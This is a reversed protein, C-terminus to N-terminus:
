QSVVVSLTPTGASIAYHDLPSPPLPGSSGYGYPVPVLQLNVDGVSAPSSLDANVVTLYSAGALSYGVWTVSGDAPSILGTGTPGTGSTATTGGTQAVYITTVGNASVALADGTAVVTSTAWPRVLQRKTNAALTFQWAFQVIANDLDGLM